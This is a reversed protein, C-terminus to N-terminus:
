QMLASNGILSANSAQQRQGLALPTQSTNLHLPATMEYSNSILQNGHDTLHIPDKPISSRGYLQENAQLHAQYCNSPTNFHSTGQAPM